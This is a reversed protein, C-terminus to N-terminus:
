GTQIIGGCETHYWGHRRKMGESTLGIFDYYRPTLEQMTGVQCDCWTHKVKSFSSSLYLLEGYIAGCDLCEHTDLEKSEPHLM